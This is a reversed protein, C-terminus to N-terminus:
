DLVRFYPSIVLGAFKYRRGELAHMGPHSPYDPERDDVSQGPSLTEYPHYIYGIKIEPRVIAFVDPRILDQLAGRTSTILARNFYVESFQNTEALRIAERISDAAHGTEEGRSYTRQPTGIFRVSSYGRPEEFDIDETEGMLPPGIGDIPIYLVVEPPKRGGNPALAKKIADRTARPWPSGDALTPNRTPPYYLGDITVGPTDWGEPVRVGPLDPEAEPVPVSEVPENEPWDTHILRGGYLHTLGSESIIPDPATLATSGRREPTSPSQPRVTAPTLNAPPGGNATTWRGRWDRPENPDYKALREEARAVLIARNWSLEPLRMQLAAIRARGLDGKNLADAVVALRPSLDVDGFADGYAAKTLAGIEAKPRSAFGLVTKRLLPAGALSVGSEVCSLGLSGTEDSLRFQLVLPAGEAWHVFCAIYTGQKNSELVFV